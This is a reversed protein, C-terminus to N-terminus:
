YRKEDKKSLIFRKEFQRLVPLDNGPQWRNLRPLGQQARLYESASVPDLPTEQLCIRVSKKLYRDLEGVYELADESVLLYDATDLYIIAPTTKELNEFAQDVTAGIGRDQTDTELVVTEEDKYLSVLQVPQLKGVDSGDVPAWVAAALILVYLLIRKM